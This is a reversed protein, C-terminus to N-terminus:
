RLIQSVRQHSLSLIRGIDRIPLGEQRLLTAAERRASAAATTAATATDLATQITNILETVTRTTVVEVNITGVDATDIDLMMAIAERATPEIHELRRAQSFVGPLEVVTIAWWDGSRRAEVHYINSTM